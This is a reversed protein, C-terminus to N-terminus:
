IVHKSLYIYFVHLRYLMFLPGAKIHTTTLYTIHLTRLKLVIRSFYHFTCLRIFLNIPLKINARIVEIHTVNGLWKLVATM